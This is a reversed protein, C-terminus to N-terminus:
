RYRIIGRARRLGLALVIMLLAFLLVWMHYSRSNNISLATDSGVLVFGAWFYPHQKLPDAQQKLYQRKADALASSKSHGDALNAYFLRMLEFSSEDPVKWKSMIVSKAGAHRFGYALSISNDYGIPSQTGTNCASLVVLQSKLKFNMIEPIDLMGENGLGEGEKFLLFSYEPHDPLLFAHTGFHLIDYNAVSEKIRNETSQDNSFVTAGFRTALYEAEMTVSPLANVTFQSAFALNSSSKPTPPYAVAFVGIKSANQNTAQADLISQWSYIYRIDHELFLYPPQKQKAPEETILLEMPLHHLGADPSFVLKRKSKVVSRVRGFLKSYIASLEQNLIEASKSNLNFVSQKGLKENVLALNETSLIGEVEVKYPKIGESTATIVFIDEVGVFLDIFAESTDLVQQIDSINFWEREKNQPPKYSLLEQRIEFLKENIEDLDGPSKEMLLQRSFYTDLNKLLDRHVQASDNKLELSKAKSVLSEGLFQNKLQFIYAILGVNKRSDTYLYKLLKEYFIKTVMQEPVNQYFLPDQYFTENRSFLQEAMVAVSDVIYNPTDKGYQAEWTQIKGMSANVFYKFHNGQKLEDAKNNGYQFLIHNFLRLASDYKHRALYNSAQVMQIEAKLSASLSGNNILNLCKDIYTKAKDPSYWENLRNHYLQALTLNLSANFDQAEESNLSVSLAKELYHEASDFQYQNLYIAARVQHIRPVIGANASTTANSSFYSYAENLLELAKQAQKAYKVYFSALNFKHFNVSQEDGLKNFISTAKLEYAEALPLERLQEYTLSLNGYTIALSAEPLVPMAEYISVTQLYHQGALTSAGLKQYASGTNLHAISLAEMYKVKGLLKVAKEGADIAKKLEGTQQFLLAQYAYIEGMLPSQNLNEETQLSAVATSLANGYFISFNKARLAPKAGLLLVVAKHYPSDKFESNYFSLAKAYHGFYADGDKRLIALEASLYHWEFQQHTTQEEIKKQLLRLGQDLKSTDGVYLDLKLLEFTSVLNQGVVAGFASWWFVVIFFTKFILPKWKKM